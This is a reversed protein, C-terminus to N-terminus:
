FLNDHEAAVILELIHHRCAFCYLRRKMGKERMTYAGKHVGSNSATTDFCMGKIQNNLEWEQLVDFVTNAEDTGCGSSSIPVELLKIIELGVDVVSTQNVKDTGTLSSLKKSDWYISLVASASEKKFTERIRAFNEKRQKKQNRAITRMSITTNEPDINPSQAFIKM